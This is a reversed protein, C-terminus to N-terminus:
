LKLKAKPATITNRPAFGISSKVNLISSRKATDTTNINTNQQNDTHKPKSKDEAPTVILKNKPKHTTTDNM